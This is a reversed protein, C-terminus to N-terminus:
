TDTQGEAVLRKGERRINIEANVDRDHRAGCPCAWKRVGLGELGKPGTLAGCESCLQTSPFYPLGQARADKRAAVVDNWIVRVCGFTRALM